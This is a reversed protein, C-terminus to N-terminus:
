HLSESEIQHGLDDPSQGDLFMRCWLELNLLSLLHDTHDERNMEHLTITQEITKWDFLGRQLVSDRSLM